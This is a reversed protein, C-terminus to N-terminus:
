RITEARSRGNGGRGAPGPVNRTGSEHLRGAQVFYGGAGRLTLVWKLQVAMAPLGGLPRGADSIWKRSPQGGAFLSQEPFCGLPELGAESFWGGLEALSVTLEHPHLYQDHYWSDLGAPDSQQVEAPLQGKLRARLLAPDVPAGGGSAWWQRFKHALRGYRNYLGVLLLGGSRLLRALALFGQRPDATHHLVGLCLVVDFHGSSLPLRFLDGRVYSVQDLAL